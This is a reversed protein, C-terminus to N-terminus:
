DRKERVMRPATVILRKVQFGCGTDNIIKQFDCFNDGAETDRKRIM